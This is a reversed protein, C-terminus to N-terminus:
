NKFFNDIFEQIESDSESCVSLIANQLQYIFQLDINLKYMKASFDKQIYINPGTSSYNFRGSDISEDILYVFGSSPLECFFSNYINVHHYENQMLACYLAENQNITIQQLDSLKEWRIDKSITKESLTQVFGTAALINM